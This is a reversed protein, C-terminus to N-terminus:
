DEQRLLHSEDPGTMRSRITRVYVSEYFNSQGGWTKSPIVNFEYPLPARLIRLKEERTLPTDSDM